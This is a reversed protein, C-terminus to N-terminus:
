DEKSTVTIKLDLTDLLKQWGIPVSGSQGTLMRTVQPRPMGLLDAIQAHTLSQRRLEIRVQERIEPNMEPFYCIYNCSLYAM